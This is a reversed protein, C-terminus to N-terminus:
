RTAAAKVSVKGDSLSEGRSDVFPMAMLRPVTEHLPAEADLGYV